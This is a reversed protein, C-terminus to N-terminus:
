RNGAGDIGWDSTEGVMITNSTGDTINMQRVGGRLVIVGGDSVPGRNQSGTHDTSPHDDGGLICTYFPEQDGVDRSVPNNSCRPLSSSPGEMFPLHVACCTM